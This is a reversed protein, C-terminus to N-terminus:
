ATLTQLEANSLRSEYCMIRHFIQDCGAGGLARGLRMTAINTPANGFNGAIAAGGNGSAAFDNASVAMALHYGLGAGVPYDFSTTSPHFLTAGSEGVLPRFSASSSDHYFLIRDDQTGNDDLQILRRYSPVSGYNTGDVYLTAAISNWFGTAPFTVIDDVGSTAARQVLLGRRGTSWDFAPVDVGYVIDNDLEDKATRTGDRSFAMLSDLPISSGNLVYVDNEFDLVLSPDASVGPLRYAALPDSQGTRRASTLSFDRILKM